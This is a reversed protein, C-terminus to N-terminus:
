RTTEWKKQLLAQWFDEWRSESVSCRHLPQRADASIGKVGVLYSSGWLMVTSELACYSFFGLLLNPVGKIKLASQSGVMEESAEEQQVSTKQNVKWVPLTLFLIIMIGFQIFSVMRYGNQWVSTTLAYSMVYPSIITGLGWFCHLWSM